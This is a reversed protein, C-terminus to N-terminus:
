IEMPICSLLGCVQLPLWQVVPFATAYTLSKMIGDKGAGGRAVEHVKGLANRPLIKVQGSRISGDIKGTSRVIPTSLGGSAAVNVGFVRLSDCPTFLLAIIGIPTRM